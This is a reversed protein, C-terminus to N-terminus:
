NFIDWQHLHLVFYLSHSHSSQFVCFWSKQNTKIRFFVCIMKMFFRKLPVLLVLIIMTCTVNLFIQYFPITIYCIYKKGFSDSIVTNSFFCQESCNMLTMITYLKQSTIILGFHFILLFTILIVNLSLSFLLFQFNWMNRREKTLLFVYNLKCVNNKQLKSTTLTM